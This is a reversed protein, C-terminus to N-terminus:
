RENNQNIRDALSQIRRNTATLMKSESREDTEVEVRRLQSREPSSSAAEDDSGIMQM